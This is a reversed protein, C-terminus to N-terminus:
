PGRGVVARFRPNRQLSEFEPSDRIIPRSYGLKTAKDLYDLAKASDGLYNYTIAARFLVESNSPAEQLARQVDQLAAQKEGTMALYGSRYVLLRADRANVQLKSTAIEIARKYKAQAEGRRDPSWYLADALNGWIEWKGDNLRLAQEHANISDSFRHMLYYTYGLNSYAGFSPRLDISRQLAAIADPYSGLTIYVGGLTFYSLYNDPALLIERKFMAVSDAYRAQDYYFLGLWHYVAWYNPRVAIAEKYASEAGSFNGLKEYADALGRLAADSQRNSEVAQKFENVAKDYKGTGNLITGLCIHAEVLQPNLSLAKECNQTARAVVENGKDLWTFEMWYADGLGAYALAYNPDIKIAQTFEAIANEINEPKEYEQLYGRGRIYAEYAAPQTNQPANLKRREEPQIKAPLMDLAASM